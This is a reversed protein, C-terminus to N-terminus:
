IVAVVFGVGLVNAKVVREDVVLQLKRAFLALHVALDEQGVLGVPGELHPHVLFVFYFVSAQERGIESRCHGTTRCSACATRGPLGYYRCRATKRGFRVATTSRRSGWRIKSYFTIIFAFVGGEPPTKTYAGCQLIRHFESIVPNSHRQGKYDGQREEHVHFSGSLIRNLGAM